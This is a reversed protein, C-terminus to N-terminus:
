AAKLWGESGVHGRLGEAQDSIHRRTARNDFHPLVRKVSSAGTSADMRKPEKEKFVCEFDEYHWGEEETWTPLVSANEGLKFEFAFHQTGTREIKGYCKEYAHLLADAFPDEGGKSGGKIRYHVPNGPELEITYAYGGTRTGCGALGMAALLVTIFLTALLGSREAARLREEVAIM